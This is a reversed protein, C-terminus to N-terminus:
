YQIYLRTTYLCEETYFYLLGGVLSFNGDSGLKSFIIM